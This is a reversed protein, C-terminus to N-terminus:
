KMAEDEDSVERVTHTGNDALLEGDDNGDRTDEGTIDREVETSRLAEAEAEAEAEAVAVVELTLVGCIVICLLNDDDPEDVEDALEGAIVPPLIAYLYSPLM